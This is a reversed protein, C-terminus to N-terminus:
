ASQREREIKEASSEIETREDLCFDTQIRNSALHEADCVHMYVCYRQFTISIVAPLDVPASAVLAININCENFAGSM